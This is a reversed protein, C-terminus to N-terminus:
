KSAAVPRCKTERTMILVGNTYVLTRDSSETDSYSGVMIEKFGDGYSSSMAYIKKDTDYVITGETVVEGYLGYVRLASAKEDYTLISNMTQHYFQSQGTFVIYEGGVTKATQPVEEKFTKGSEYKLTVSVTANTWLPSGAALKPLLPTADGPTTAIKQFRSATMLEQSFARSSLGTLLLFFTLITVIVLRKM